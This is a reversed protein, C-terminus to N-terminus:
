FLLEWKWSPHGDGPVAWWDWKQSRSPFGHGVGQCPGSVGSGSHIVMVRGYDVSGVELISTWGGGYDISGVTEMNLISSTQGRTHGASGLIGSNFLATPLRLLSEVVSPVTSFTYELHASSMSYYSM